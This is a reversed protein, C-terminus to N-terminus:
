IKNQPKTAEISSGPRTKQNSDMFRSKFKDNKNENLTVSNNTTECVDREQSSVGMRKDNMGSVQDTVGGITDTVNNSRAIRHSAGVKQTETLLSASNKHSSSKNQAEM